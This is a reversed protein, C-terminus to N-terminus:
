SANQLGSHYTGGLHRPRACRRVLLSGRRFYPGYLGHDCPNDALSLRLPPSNPDDRGVRQARARPRRTLQHGFEAAFESQSLLVDGFGGSRCYSCDSSPFRLGAAVPGRAEVVPDVPKVRDSAGKGGGVRGRQYPRPKPRRRRVEVHPLWVPHDSRILSVPDQEGGLSDGRTDLWGVEHAGPVACRRIRGIRIPRAAGPM